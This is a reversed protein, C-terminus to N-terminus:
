FVSKDHFVIDFVSIPVDDRQPMEAHAILRYMKRLSFLRLLDQLWFLWHQLCM